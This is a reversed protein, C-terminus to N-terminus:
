GDLPAPESLLNMTMICHEQLQDGSDPQSLRMRVLDQISERESVLRQRIQDLQDPAILTQLRRKGVAKNEAQAVARLLLAAAFEQDRPNDRSLMALLRDFGRAGDVALLWTVARRRVEGNHSTTLRQITEVPVPVRRGALMQLVEVQLLDSGDELYPVVMHYASEGGVKLLGRLAFVRVWPHQSRLMSDFIRKMSDDALAVLAKAAQTAVVSNFDRALSILPNVARRDGIKALVRPIRRRLRSHPTKIFSILQPVAASGHRALANIIHGARGNPAAALLSILERVERFSNTGESSEPDIGEDSDTTGSVESPLNANNELTEEASGLISRPEIPSVEPPHTPEPPILLDRVARNSALSRKRVYEAALDPEREAIALLAQRADRRVWRDSDGLGEVIQGIANLSNMSALAEIALRREPKTGAVLLGRLIVISADGLYVLRTILAGREAEGRANRTHVLKEAIIGKQEESVERQSERLADVALFPDVNALAELAINVDSHIEALTFCVEDTAQARRVGNQFRPKRVVYPMQDLKQSLREAAFYELILQHSFQIFRNNKSLRILGTNVGLRVLSEFEIGSPIRKAAWTRDIATASRTQVASLALEGLGILMETYTQSAHSRLDVERQYVTQALIRLLEGRTSPLVKGCEAYVYCLLALQFPNDALRAFNRAARDYRVDWGISALLGRADDPGLYREAFLEVQADTLPHITVTATSLQRNQLYQSQRAAVVAQGAPNEDLWRQINEVRTVYDRERVENLGDLLLLLRSAPISPCGKIDREHVLLSKLDSISEPWEALNVYLPVPGGDNLAQQAKILHLYHLTTSKGSGPDGLMVVQPYRDLVEVMSPVLDQQKATERSTQIVRFSRPFLQVPFQTPPMVTREATGSLVVYKRGLDGEKTICDELYDRLESAAVSAGSRVKMSWEHLAAAVQRALDEPTTFFRVTKLLRLEDRFRQIRRGDDGDREFRDCDSPRWPHDDDLLFVLRDIGADGAARYELETISETEGTPVFGYRHAFIGVYVDTSKVATISSALPPREKANAAEMSVARMNMSAIQQLVAARYEILDKFTASVYVAPVQSSM